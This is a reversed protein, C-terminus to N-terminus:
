SLIEPYVVNDTYLGQKGQYRGNRHVLWINAKERVRSMAVYLQGHTFFDQCQFIGVKTLTQGQAKNSSMGFCIKIPFQRREMNFPFIADSPRIPTRPIFIKEGHPSQHINEEDPLKDSSKYLRQEGPFKEIMLQNVEDAEKNTPCLIARSCLWESSIEDEPLDGWVFNCLGALMKDELTYEEPIRIKYRGLSRETSIQGQGIRLLEDAFSMASDEDANVRMNKNLKLVHVQAWLPSSKLCADIIDVRNGHRVVPLIQRWDGSFLVTIGGFTEESERIDRFTREVTEYVNRHAMTVEHIVLLKCRQIIEATADRKSINCMSSDDLMRVPVKCRSHLTRGNMLLTAAIGSTATALAVDGRNRVDALITSLLFTKSPVQNQADPNAPGPEEEDPPPNQPDNQGNNAQGPQPEDEPLNNDQDDDQDDLPRAVPDAAERAEANVMFDQLAQPNIVNELEYAFRADRRNPDPPLHGAVLDSQAIRRRVSKLRNKIPQLNGSAYIRRAHPTLQEQGGLHAAIRAADNGFEQTAEEYARIEAETVRDARAM